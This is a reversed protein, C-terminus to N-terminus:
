ANEFKRSRDLRPDGIAILPHQSMRWLVAAFYVGGVGVLCLVDLLHPAFAHAEGPEVGTARAYNPLILWYCEVVHMVILLAAGSALGSFHRKVNRSMLLVFPVAFHLIAIAISVNKWPGEGWRLHYFEAEEPIGAYWILFFQCFAIYAWFCNFGFLLKGTDHFHEVTVMEGLVGQKRLWMVVLNLTAFFAVMGMAFLYVGFMTSYWSPLLSMYWDFAAFTSTLAMVPIAWPAMRQAKRTWEKDKDADQSLSNSLMRWAIFAWALLFLAARAFFFSKNLYPSKKGLLEGHAEHEIERQTLPRGATPAGPGEGHGGGHSPAATQEGGHAPAAHPAGHDGHASWEGYLTDVHLGIPAFLLVFVMIGSMLFEAIRRVVVSWGASTVHQILVFFTSGIALTLFTVFAFLYSYAFRRGHDDGAGLAWAAGIGIVGIAAAIKWAGALSGQLRYENTSASM